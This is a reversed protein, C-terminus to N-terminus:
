EDWGRHETRPRQEPTSLSVKKPVNRAGDHASPQRDRTQACARGCRLHTSRTRWAEALFPEEFFPAETVPGRINKNAYVGSGSSLAPFQSSGRAFRCWVSSRKAVLSVAANALPRPRCVERAASPDTVPNVDSRAQPESLSCCRLWSLGFLM